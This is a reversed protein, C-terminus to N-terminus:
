RFHLKKLPKCPRDRGGAVAIFATFGDKVTIASLPSPQEVALASIMKDVSDPAVGVDRVHHVVVHHIAKGLAPCRGRALKTKVRGHLNVAYCFLRKIRQCHCYRKVRRKHGAAKRAIYLFRFIYDFLGDGMRAIRKNINQLGADREIFNVGNLPIFIIAVIQAFIVGLWDGFHKTQQM